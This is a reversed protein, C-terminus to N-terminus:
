FCSCFFIVCGWLLIFNVDVLCPFFSTVLSFTDLHGHFLSGTRFSTWFLLSLSPSFLLPSTTLLFIKKGEWCYIKLPCTRSSPSFLKIYKKKFLNLVNLSKKKFLNNLFNLWSLSFENNNKKWAILM